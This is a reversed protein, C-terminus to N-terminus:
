HLHKTNYLYSLVDYANSKADSHKTSVSFYEPVEYPADYGTFGKIEGNKAKKWMGKVDRKACTKRDTAIFVPVFKDEGIISQIKDRQAAYPSVFAALVIVGHAVLTKAINAAIILNAERDEKSFGLNPTVTKRFVDGDLMVVTNNRKELEKKLEKAITTKGSCPLGTFWVCFGNGDNFRDSTKTREKTGSINKISDPVSVISYGVDRGVCVSDVDPVVMVKVLNNGQYYNEILKKRLEIPFPDKESMPTDRIM